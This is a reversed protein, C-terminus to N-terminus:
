IVIICIHRYDMVSISAPTSHYKRHLTIFSNAGVNEDAFHVQAFVERSSIPDNNTHITEFTQEQDM